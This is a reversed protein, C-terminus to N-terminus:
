PQFHFGHLQEGRIAMAAGLINTAKQLIRMMHMLIVGKADVRFTPM